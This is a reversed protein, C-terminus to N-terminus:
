SCALLLSEHSPIALNHLLSWALLDCKLWGISVATIKNVPLLDKVFLVAYYDLHCTFYRSRWARDRLVAKFGPLRPQIRLAGCFASVLGICSGYTKQLLQNCSSLKGDIWRREKEEESIRADSITKVRETVEKTRNDRSAADEVRV